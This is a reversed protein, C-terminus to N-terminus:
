RACDLMARWLRRRGSTGSYFLLDILLKFALASIAAPPRPNQTSLYQQYYREFSHLYDGLLATQGPPKDQAKRQELLSVARRILEQNQRALHSIIIVLSRAAELALPKQQQEPTISTAPQPSYWWTLCDVLSPPLNLEKAANLVTPHDIKSLSALALLVIELYTEIQELQQTNPSSALPFEQWDPTSVSTPMAASM